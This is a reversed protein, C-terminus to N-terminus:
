KSVESLRFHFDSLDEIKIKSIKLAIQPKMIPKTKVKSERDDINEAMNPQQKM